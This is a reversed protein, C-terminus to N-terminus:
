TEDEGAKGIKVNNLVDGTENINIEDAKEM